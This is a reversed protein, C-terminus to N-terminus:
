FSRPDFGHHRCVIAALRNFEANHKTWDGRAWQRLHVMEHAMSTLLTSTHGVMGLSARIRFRGDALPLFDGYRDKTRLLEFNIEVSSPLKWRDFPRTSRLLEYAHRLTDPTV